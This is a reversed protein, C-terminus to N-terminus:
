SATPQHNQQHCGHTKNTRLPNLNVAAPDRIIQPCHLGYRFLPSIDSHSTAAQSIAKEKKSDEAFVLIQPVKTGFFSRFTLTNCLCKVALLSMIVTCRVHVCVFIRIEVVLSRHSWISSHRGKKPWDGSQHTTQDSHDTLDAFVSTIQLQGM